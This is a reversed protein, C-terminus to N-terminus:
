VSLLSILIYTVLMCLLINRMFDLPHNSPYESYWEESTETYKSMELIFYQHSFSVAGALRAQVCKKGCDSIQFFHGSESQTPRMLGM